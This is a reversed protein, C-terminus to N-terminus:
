DTRPRLSPAGAEAPVSPVGRRALRLALLRELEGVPDDSFDVRLDIDLTPPFQADDSRRAVLLCASEAGRVDGGASEAARLARILRTSAAVVAAADRSVIRGSADPAGADSSGEGIKEAADTPAPEGMAAAARDLVAAGALYNGVVAFGEGEREGAWPTCLRGTHVACGGEVDLVAVQRYDPGPDSELADALAAAPPKGARMAALVAHRLGRNTWAQSAVAGVSPDIAPVSNGVALGATVSAIGIVGSEADAMLVTYTM